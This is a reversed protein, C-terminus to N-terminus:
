TTGNRLKPSQIEHFKAFGATDGNKLIAKDEYAGAHTFYLHTAATFAMNLLDQHTAKEANALMNAVESITFNVDGVLANMDTNYVSVINGILFRMMNEETKKIQRKAAREVSEGSQFKPRLPVLVGWRRWLEKWACDFAGDLHNFHRYRLEKEEHVIKECVTEFLMTCFCFFFYKGSRRNDGVWQLLYAMLVDIDRSLPHRGEQTLYPM